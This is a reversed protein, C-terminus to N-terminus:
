VAKAESPWTDLAYSVIVLCDRSCVSLALAIGLQVILTCLEADGGSHDQDRTYSKKMQKCLAVATWNTNFAELHRSCSTLGRFSKVIQLHISKIIFTLSLIPVRICPSM